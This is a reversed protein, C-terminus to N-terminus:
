GKTTFTTKPVVIKMRVLMATIVRIRTTITLLTMLLMTIQLLKEYSNKEEGETVGSGLGKTVNIAPKKSVESEKLVHSYACITAKGMVAVKPELSSSSYM